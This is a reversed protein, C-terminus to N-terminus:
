FICLHTKLLREAEFFVATGVMATGGVSDFDLGSNTSMRVAALM